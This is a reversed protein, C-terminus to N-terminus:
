SGFVVCSVRLKASALGHAGLVTARGVVRFLGSRLMLMRRSIALVHMAIKVRALPKPLKRRDIM